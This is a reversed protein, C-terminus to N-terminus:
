PTIDLILDVFDDKNLMIAWSVRSPYGNKGFQYRFIDHDCKVTLNPGMLKSLLNGKVGHMFRRM